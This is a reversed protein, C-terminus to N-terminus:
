KRLEVFVPREAGSDLELGLELVGNKVEGAELRFGAVVGGGDLGSVGAKPEIGEL